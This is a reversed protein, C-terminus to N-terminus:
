GHRFTPLIPLKPNLNQSPRHFNKSSIGHGKRTAYKAKKVFAAPEATLKENDRYSISFALSASTRVPLRSLKAGSPQESLFGMIKGGFGFDVDMKATHM